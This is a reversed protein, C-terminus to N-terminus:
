PLLVELQTQSEVPKLRWRVASDVKSYKTAGCYLCRYTLIHFKEEQEAFPTERVIRAQEHSWVGPSEEVQMWHHFWRGDCRTM